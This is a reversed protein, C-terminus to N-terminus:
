NIGEREMIMKLNKHYWKQSKRPPTIKLENLKDTLATIKLKPFKNRVLRIEKIIKQEDENRIHIPANKSRDTNMKWGFSPKTRLSGM